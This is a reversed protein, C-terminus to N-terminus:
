LKRIQFAICAKKYILPFFLVFTIVLFLFSFIQGTHIWLILWVFYNVFILQVYIDKTNIALKYSYRITCGIIISFLVIALYGGEIYFGGLLTATKTNETPALTINNFIDGYSRQKGPLFTSITELYYSGYGFNNNLNDRVQQFVQPGEILNYLIPLFPLIYVNSSSVQEVAISLYKDFGYYELDRFFAILNIAVFSFISSFTLYFKTKKSYDALVLHYVIIIAFIYMPAARYNNLVAFIIYILLYKRNGLKFAVFSFVLGVYFTLLLYSNTGFRFEEGHFIPVGGLLIWNIAMGMLGVINVVVVARNCKLIHSPYVTKFLYAKSYFSGFTIYSLSYFGYFLLYLSENYHDVFAGRAILNAGGILGHLLFTICFISRPNFPNKAGLFLITEFVIIAFIILQYTEKGDEGWFPLASAFIAVLSLAIKLTQKIM